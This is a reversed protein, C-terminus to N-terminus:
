QEGQVALAQRSYGAVQKYGELLAQLEEQSIVDELRDFPQFGTRREVEEILHDPPTTRNTLVVRNVRELREDEYCRLAAQPTAERALADALVRTDVIAQMAGNSGRPIMPHAADGLLAVRDFVWRAVPDRDSMPYEYIQEAGAFLEPVDLWDFRWDAFPGIFDEVRGASTWVAPKYRDSYVEAVWNVLQRGEGDVDDRIPYIVMKGPDVTGVRIHSGGSLIPAHKTVGRWMTTGSFVPEGEGPYFQKRIRSHIGDCAIVVDARRSGLAAGGITAEFHAVVGGADQEVSTCTHGLAVRDAGLRDLVADALTGHLDARHVLFQPWESAAPDRYLLQGARNFFCSERFEVAKARIEPLLGLAAIEKTGHPLLSIGVGLERFEPAAEYVRCSVGRQHLGLALTLGAIGGGVIMVDMSASRDDGTM